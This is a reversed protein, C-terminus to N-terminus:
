PQSNSAPLAEVVEASRQSENGSPDVASVSYAYHQGPAPQTDRFAPAAVPKGAPSIRTAAASAGEGSVTRRYVVYGGLHADNDPTWSLDIAQGPTDVASVLGTPVAPPFVDRYALSVPAVPASAIELAHGDVTVRAVRQVTYRYTCGMRATRDRAGAHAADEPAQLMQESPAEESRSGGLGPQAAAPAGATRVRDFRLFTVAGAPQETKHWALVIADRRPIATFGAVLAPAAGSAAYAPHSAGASKGASNQLAVQYTLLRPSGQTLDAPLTDDMSAAQQPRVVLTGVPQCAGAAVSRCLMATVAGRVPLKDTTKQPALFTLHVTAGSRTAALDAVPQPLNLTPPQPAAPAGCGTM